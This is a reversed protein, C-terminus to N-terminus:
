MRSEDQGAVDLLFAFGRGVDSGLGVGEGVGEAGSPVHGESKSLLSFVPPSDMPPRDASM